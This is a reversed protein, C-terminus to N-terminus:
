RIPRLTHAAFDNDHELKVCFEAYGLCRRRGPEGDPHVMLGGIARQQVRFLRLENSVPDIRALSSGIRSIQRMVRTNVRSRGLDLFQIGRRLIEVWGLYRPLEAQGDSRHARAADVAWTYGSTTM